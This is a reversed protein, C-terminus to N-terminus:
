PISPKKRQSTTASAEVAVNPGNMQKEAVNNTEKHEVDDDVIGDMELIEEVYMSPKYDFGNEADKAKQELEKRINAKKTSYRKNKNEPMSRYVKDYERRANRRQLYEITSHPLEIRLEDFVMFMGEEYGVSDTIVVLSVHDSLAMTGSFHKHKPAVQTIQQHLSESKQSMFLHYVQEMMLDM